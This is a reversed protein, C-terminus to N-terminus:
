WAHGKKQLRRKAKAQERRYWHYTESARPPKGRNPRHAQLRRVKGNLEIQDVLDQDIQRHLRRANGM